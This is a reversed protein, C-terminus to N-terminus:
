IVRCGDVLRRQSEDLEFPAIRIGEGHIRGTQPNRVVRTVWEYGFDLDAANFWDQPYLRYTGQAPNAALLALDARMGPIRPIAPSHCLILLEEVQYLEQPFDAAMDQDITGTSLDGSALPKGALEMRSGSADMRGAIEEVDTEFAPLLSPRLVVLRISSSETQNWALLTSDDLRMIWNGFDFIAVTGTAGVLLTKGALQSPGTANKQAGLPTKQWTFGEVATTGARVYWPTPGPVGDFLRSFQSEM